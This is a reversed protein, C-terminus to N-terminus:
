RQIRAGSSSQAGQQYKDERLQTRVKKIPPPKSNAEEPLKCRLELGEFGMGPLVPESCGWYPPPFSMCIHPQKREHQPM